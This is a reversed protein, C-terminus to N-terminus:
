RFYAGRLNWRPAGAARQILGGCCILLIRWGFHFSNRDTKIGGGGQSGTLGIKLGEVGKLCKYIWGRVRCDVNTSSSKVEQVSPLLNSKGAVGQGTNNYIQLVTLQWEVSLLTSFSTEVQGWVQENLPETHRPSATRDPVQLGPVGVQVQRSVGVLDPLSQSFTLQFQYGTINEPIQSTSTACQSLECVHGNNLILM